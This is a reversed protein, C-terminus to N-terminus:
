EPINIFLYIFLYILLFVLFINIKIDFDSIESISFNEPKLCTFCIKDIKNWELLFINILKDILENAKAIWSRHNLILNCM